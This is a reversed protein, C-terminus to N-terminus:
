KHLELLYVGLDLGHKMFPSNLPKINFFINALSVLM